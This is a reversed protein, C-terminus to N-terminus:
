PRTRQVGLDRGSRRTILGGPVRQDVPVGLLHPVDSPAEAEVRCGGRRDALQAPPTENVVEVRDPGM